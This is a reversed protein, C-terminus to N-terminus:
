SDVQSPEPKRVVALYAWTFHEARDLKDLALAALQIAGGLPPILRTKKLLGRNRRHLMYSTLQGFTVWFGSMPTLEVIEFGAKGFLHSLGYKTFRFFDRPEEHLHWILPVTYVAYAGPKLVRFCERIALEPEELHELVASCLASDFSADAVPIAYATSAIDVRHTGHLTAPHDVGVHREIYPSALEEYPKLGCGIDILTGRLYLKFVRELHRRVLEHVLWNKSSLEVGSLARLENLLKLSSRLLPGLLM